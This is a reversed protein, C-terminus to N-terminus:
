PPLLLRTFTSRRRACGHHSETATGIPESTTANAIMPITRASVPRSGHSVYRFITSAPNVPLPAIDAVSIEAVGIRNVPRAAAAAKRMCSKLMPASPCSYRPATPADHIASRSPSWSAVDVGSKTMAMHTAAAASPASQANIGPTRRAKARVFSIMVDSISM